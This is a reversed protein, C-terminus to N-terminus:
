TGADRYRFKMACGNHADYEDNMEETVLPSASAM